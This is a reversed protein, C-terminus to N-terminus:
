PKRTTTTSTTTSKTSTAQSTSSQAGVRPTDPTNEEVWRALATTAEVTAQDYAAVIAGVRNAAAPKSVDFVQVGIPSGDAAALRAMVTIQITPASKPDSYRAEFRSVDLDLIANSRGVEGRGLLHTRPAATDFSRDLTQRFLVTAPAVWRAGTIYSAQEAEMTLIGDGMAERPFSVPALTVGRADNAEPRPTGEGTGFRYLQAPKAQPLLSVCGGLSVSLTLVAALVAMPRMPSTGTM